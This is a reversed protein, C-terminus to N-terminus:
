PTVGKSQRKKSLLVFAMFVAMSLLVFTGVVRTISFVYQRGEPDYSFCYSLAKAITPRALGDTAETVAMQLDFPLYKVGYLYRTIKGDKALMILAGPHVFDEGWPKFEFGVSDALAKTTAARGTLFRWADPPMPRKMQKFYSEKKRAALEADDRPDFSVTIVQFETGPQLQVKNLVDLVGNLQPTCIGACRFFNLTLVTPKDILTRLSVTAGTEDVLDVDLNAKDGLHEILDVEEPPPLATQAYAPVVACTTAVALAVACAPGATIAPWDHPQARRAFFSM